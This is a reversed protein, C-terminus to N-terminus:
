SKTLHSCITLMGSNIFALTHISIRSDDRIVCHLLRRGRGGETRKDEWGEERWKTNKDCCCSSSDNQRIFGMIETVAVRHRPISNLLCVPRLFRACLSSSDRFRQTPSLTTKLPKPESLIRYRCVAEPIYRPPVIVRQVAKVLM